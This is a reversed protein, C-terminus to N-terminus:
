GGTQETEDAVKEAAASHAQILNLEMLLNIVLRELAEETNVHWLV